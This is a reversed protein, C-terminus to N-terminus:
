TTAERSPSLPLEIFEEVVEELALRNLANSACFILGTPPGTSLLFEGVFDLKTVEDHLALARMSTSIEGLEADDFTVVHHAGQV